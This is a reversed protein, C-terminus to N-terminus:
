TFALAAMGDKIRLINLTRGYVNVTGNTLGPDLGLALIASSYRSFNIEGFSDVADPKISFAYLYINKGQPIRKHAIYPQVLRFYSGPRPTFRTTGNLLLSVQTFCDRNGSPNRYDFARNGLLSDTSTSAQSMYVFIIEKVPNCYSLPINRILSGSASLPAIIPQAGTYQLTEILYEHSSTAFFRREDTGLFVYDAYMQISLSPSIFNANVLSSVPSGTSRICSLLPSFEINICVEHLSLAILPLANVYDKCFSFTLPVYLVRSTAFSKAPNTIDYDDFRGLMENIGDRQEARDTLQMMIDVFQPYHKDIRSGGITFEITSLLAVGICNAWKINQATPPSATFQTLDPLTIELWVRSLLDGVVPIHAIARTGFDANGQFAVPSAEIAFPTHKKYLVSFFTIDPKYVLYQDAASSQQVQLVAGGM